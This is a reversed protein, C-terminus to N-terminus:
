LVSRVGLPPQYGSWLTVTSSATRALIIGAAVPVGDPAFVVAIRINEKYESVIAEIWRRSHVPSGLEHMNEAFVSYFAAILEQSGVKVEYGSKLPKKVKNRLKSKLSALFLESNEPLNLLMRVKDTANGCGVPLPQTTRIHCKAGSQQALSLARKLLKQAVDVDDALIGGADCYPLSILSSGFFPIHFDILPLVGCIKNEKEALLYCADYGYAKKVARQWAFM